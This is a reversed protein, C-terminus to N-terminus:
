DMREKGKDEKEKDDKEEFSVVSNGDVDANVVRLRERPVTFMLQVVRNEVAGEVDWEDEDDEPGREEGWDKAGRKGKWFAADSAARRPALDQSGVAPEAGTTTSSTLEGRRAYKNAAASTLSASRGSSMAIARRVSGVWSGSSPRRESKSRNPPEPAVEEISPDAYKYHTPNPHYKGLLAEGETQLQKFSKSSPPETMPRTRQTPTTPSGSDPSSHISSHHNTNLFPSTLSSLLAVSRISLTRAISTVVTGDHGTSSSSGSGNSINSISSLTSMTRDSKTPSVRGPGTSSAGAQMEPANLLKEAAKEWDHVWTQVEQELEPDNSVQSLPRSKTSSSQLAATDKFPDSQASSRGDIKDSSKRADTEEETEVIPHIADRNRASREYAYPGRGGSVKRLGRTPNVIDLQAGTRAADHTALRKWNPTQQMSRHAPPPPGFEKENENESYIETSVYVGGRGDRGSFGGMGWEDSNFQHIGKIEEERAERKQRLRRKRWLYLFGLAIILLAGLGLGVGLGIRTSSSKSSNSTTSKSTGPNVFASSPVNIESIWSNSTVNYLYAKTNLEQSNAARKRSHTASISYGGLILMINGPLMAAGHGYLGSGSPPGAGVSPPMSWRWDGKGGYGDAVNLVALQPNAPTNVDGIWGGYVIIKKGDSSLVATHGSRPELSNEALDVQSVTVYTWTEQPLSFLAAQSMNLFASGTHGGLLLFGQQQAQTGDTRNTFTPSLPTLSQGAQAVPSSKANSVVSDFRASGSVRPTGLELLSSSYEATSIWDEATANDSPCMGGFQYLKQDFENGIGSNPFVVASSIFDPGAGASPVQSSPTRQLWTGLNRQTSDLRWLKAQTGEGCSGAYVTINGASDIAASFPVSSSDQLFPLSQSITTLAPSSTTIKASLDLSALRFQSSSSSVPIFVYATRDNRSSILIRTPNYPLLAASVTQALILLAFPLESLVPPHSSKM